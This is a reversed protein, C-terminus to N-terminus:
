VTPTFLPWSDPPVSLIEEGLDFVLATPFLCFFKKSAIMNRSKLTLTSTSLSRRTPNQPTFSGSVTRIPLITKHIALHLSTALM